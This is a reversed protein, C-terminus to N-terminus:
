DGRPSLKESLKKLAARMRTLVTGLPQNLRTAIEAFTLEEFIRLNVIERLKDPLEQLRRRVQEISERRIVTEDPEENTRAPSWVAKHEILRGERQSRRRLALAEHLAVKFLWGKFTERRATHGAELVKVFTAQLAEGALEGDRLVGLLFARVDDAFEVYLEAIVQPDLRESDEASM